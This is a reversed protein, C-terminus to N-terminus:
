SADTVGEWTLTFPNIDRIYTPRNALEQVLHRWARLGDQFAMSILVWQGHAKQMALQLRTLMGHAGAVDPNISHLM